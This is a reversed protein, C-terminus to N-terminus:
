RKLERVTSTDGTTTGTDGAITSHYRAQLAELIQAARSEREKSSREERVMVQRMRPDLLLEIKKQGMLHALDYVSYHMADRLNPDCGHDLLLRAEEFWGRAAAIHLATTGEHYGCAASGDLALLRKLRSPAPTRRHDFYLFTLPMGGLLRWHRALRTLQQDTLQTQEGEVWDSLQHYVWYRYGVGLMVLGLLGCLVIIFVRRGKRGGRKPSMKGATAKRQEPIAEEM